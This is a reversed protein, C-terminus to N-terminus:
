EIQYLTDAPYPSGDQRNVEMIFSSLHNNLDVASLTEISETIGRYKSWSKWVSMCWNTTKEKNQFHCPKKPPPPQLISSVM